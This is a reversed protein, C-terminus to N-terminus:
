AITIPYPEVFIEATGDYFNFSKTCSEETGYVFFETTTVSMIGPYVTSEHEYVSKSMHLKSPDPVLRKSDLKGMFHGQLEEECERLACANAYEGRKRTGRVTWGGSHVWLEPPPLVENGNSFRRSVERLELGELFNQFLVKIGLAFRYIRDSREDYALRVEREHVEEYLHAFTKNLLGDFEKINVHRSKSLLRMMDEFSSGDDIAELDIM